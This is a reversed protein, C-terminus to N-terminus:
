LYGEEWAIAEDLSTFMHGDCGDIDVTYYNTYPKKSSTVISLKRGHKECLKALRDVDLLVDFSNHKNKM